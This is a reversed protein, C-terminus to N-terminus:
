VVIAIMIILTKVVVAIIMAIVMVMVNLYNIHFFYSFIITFKM